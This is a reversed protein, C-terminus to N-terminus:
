KFFEHDAYTLVYTLSSDFWEVNRKAAYRRAMFYLAGKSKDEGKLVRDVAEKTGKTVTVDYYSGDSIPSFQYVGGSHDFVVETVNDPFETKCKVRNLIVNAVLMRGEVDEDGAEAEVIRLLVEKDHESIKVVYKNKKRKKRKKIKEKEEDKAIQKQASLADANQEQNVAFLKLVNIENANSEGFAWFATQKLFPIVSIVNNKQPISAIGLLTDNALEQNTPFLQNIAPEKEKEFFETVNKLGTKDTKEKQVTAVEAYTSSQYSVTGSLGTIMICSTLIGVATRVLMNKRDHKEKTLVLGSFMHKM